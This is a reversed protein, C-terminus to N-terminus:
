AKNYSEIKSEINGISYLCGRIDQVLVNTGQYWEGDICAFLKNDIGSIALEREFFEGERLAVCTNSTSFQKRIEENVIEINTESDIHYSAGSDPDKAPIDFNIGKAEIKFGKIIIPRRGINAVTITLVKVSAKKESLGHHFGLSAWATIKANDREINYVSYIAVFVAILM